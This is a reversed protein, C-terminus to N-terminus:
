AVDRESIVKNVWEDIESEVWASINDIKVPAPFTGENIRKYISTRGIGTRDMVAKIRILTEKPM